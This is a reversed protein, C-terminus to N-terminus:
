NIYDKIEVNRKELRATEAAHCMAHSQISIEIGTKGKEDGKIMKVFNDM